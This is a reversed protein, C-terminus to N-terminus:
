LCNATSHRRVMLLTANTMGAM